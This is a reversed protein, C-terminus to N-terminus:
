SKETEVTFFLSIFFPIIMIAIGLCLAKTWVDPGFAIGGIAVGLCTAEAIINIKKLKEPIRGQNQNELFMQGVGLCAIVSLILVNYKSLDAFYMLCIGSIFAIAIITQQTKKGFYVDICIETLTKM